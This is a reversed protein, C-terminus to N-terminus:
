EVEEWFTGTATQNWMEFNLRPDLALPLDVVSVMADDEVGDWCYKLICGQCQATRPIGMKALSRDIAICGLCEPWEADLTGNGQTVENFSNTLIVAIQENSFSSFSYSYNTYASYPANPMYMVIPARLDNSNTLKADCGFAVPM